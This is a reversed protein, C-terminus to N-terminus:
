TAEEVPKPLSFSFRSGQGNGDSELWIRGGHVDVIRKVLSLGIGTGETTPDLRDFLGFVKEHYRPDIGPGNDSVHCIVEGKRDEFSIEIRPRETTSVFKAANDILNLVVELLRKRDGYVRPPDPAVSVEVRNGDIRGAVMAVVEDVLEGLDVWESPNVIRGIRSLELLEDLLTQMTDAATAIQRLDQDVREHDGQKLDTELLGIFGSITILPSKLDHSVTYTFRELEANKSELEDILEAREKAQRGLQDRSERLSETYQHSKYLLADLAEKISRIEASAGRDLPPLPSLTAIDRERVHESIEKLPRLLRTIQWSLLGLLVLLLALEEILRTRVDDRLDRFFDDSGFVRAIAILERSPGGYVPVETVFCTACAAYGRALSIQEPPLRVVDPDFELEIRVIFATQTAPHQFLLARDMVKVVADIQHEDMGPTLVEGLLNALAQSQFRANSQADIRLQPELVHTWYFVGFGTLIAVLLGTLLTIRTHLYAGFWLKRETTM